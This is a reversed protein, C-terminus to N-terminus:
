ISLNMILTLINKLSLILIRNLPKIYKDEFGQSHISESLGNKFLELLPKLYEDLTTYDTKKSLYNLLDNKINEVTEFDLIEKKFEGILTELPINEFEMAGKIMIGMPTNKDIEFIKKVGIYSKYEDTTVALDSALILSRKNFIVSQITM